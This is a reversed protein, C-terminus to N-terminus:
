PCLEVVGRVAQGREDGPRPRGEGALLGAYFRSRSGAMSHLIRPASREGAPALTSQARTCQLAAQPICPGRGRASIPLIGQGGAGGRGAQIPGQRPGPAHPCKRVDGGSCPGASERAGTLVVPPAGADNGKRLIGEAPVAPLGAPGGASVRPATRRAAAAERAIPSLPCVGGTRPAAEGGRM